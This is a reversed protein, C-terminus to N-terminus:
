LHQWYKNMEKKLEILSDVPCQQLLAHTTLLCISNWYLNFLIFHCSMFYILLSRSPPDFIKLLSWIILSFVITMKTVNKGENCKEVILRVNWYIFKLNRYHQVVLPWLLSCTSSDPDVAKLFPILSSVWQNSNKHFSSPAELMRLNQAKHLVFM